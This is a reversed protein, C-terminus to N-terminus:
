AMELARRGRRCRGSPSCSEACARRALPWAPMRRNSISSGPWPMTCTIPGSSPASAARCGAPTRRCGCRCARRCPRAPRRCRSSRARAHAPSASWRAAGGWANARRREFALDAPADRGLVQDQVQDALDACGAARAIRDLVRAAGDAREGDLAAEGDAVERDLQAGCPAHDGGVVRGEGIELAPGERGLARQPVAGDGCQRVSGLSASATNSRSTAISTPPMAGCIVQPVLGSCTRATSRRMGSGAVTGSPAPAAAHLRREVVHAELGASGIAPVLTSQTNMPEHVLLRMASRRAAAATARPRWTASRTRGPHHRAGLRHLALRLGLAEVADEDVGAELPALGAARHAEGHVALGHRRALAADGGGVAVEDAALPRARAGMEGARRHGGGGREGACCRRRACSCPSCRQLVSVMSVNVCASRRRRAAAMRWFMSVSM